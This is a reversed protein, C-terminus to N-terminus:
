GNITVEVSNDLQANEIETITVTVGAKYSVELPLNDMSTQTIEVINTGEQITLPQATVTDTTATALPYVVVVPNGSNYQNRLYNRNYRQYIKRYAIKMSIIFKM